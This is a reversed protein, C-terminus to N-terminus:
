LAHATILLSQSPHRILVGTFLTPVLCHRLAEAGHPGIGNHMMHLSALRHTVPPGALAAAVALAGADRLLNDNLSLATLTPKAACLMALAKAGDTRLTNTDVSLSALPAGGSHASTFADALAAAGDDGLDNSSMDLRTLAPCGALALALAKGGDPGLGNSSLDLSCLRGPPSAKLAIGFAAAGHDGLRNHDLRLSSLARLSPLAEGLATVEATGWGLHDYELSSVTPAVENFSREYLEVLTELEAATDVADIRPHEADAASEAVVKDADHPRPSPWGVAVQSRLRAATAVPLRVSCTCDLRDAEAWGDGGYAKRMAEASRLGLNLLRRGSTRLAALRVWAACWGVSSYQPEVAFGLADKQLASPPPETQWWVITEGHAFWACAAELGANHPAREVITGTSPHLSAFPWLLAFDTCKEDLGAAVFAAALPSKEFSQRSYYGSAGLYLKAVHAVINLQFGYPDAHDESLWSCAVAVFLLGADDDLEDVRRQLQDATWFAEPPLEGRSQLKGGSEHLAILWSGRLPAVAGSRVSALLPQM